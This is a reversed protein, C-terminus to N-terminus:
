VCKTPLCCFLNQFLMCIFKYTWKDIWSGEKRTGPPTLIVGVTPKPDISLLTRPRWLFYKRIEPVYKKSFFIAWWQAWASCCRCRCAFVDKHPIEFFITWFHLGLFIEKLNPNKWNTLLVACSFYCFLRWCIDNKKSFFVPFIKAFETQSGLYLQKNNEHNKFLSYMDSEAFFSKASILNASYRHSDSARLGFGKSCKWPHVNQHKATNWKNSIVPYRFQM